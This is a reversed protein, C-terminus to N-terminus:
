CRKLEYEFLVRPSGMVQYNTPVNGLQTYVRIILGSGRVRRYPCMLSKYDWRVKQGVKFKAKM